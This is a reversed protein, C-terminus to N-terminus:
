GKLPICQSDTFFGDITAALWMHVPSKVLGCDTNISIGPSGNKIKYEIYKDVTAEKRVLVGHHLKIEM